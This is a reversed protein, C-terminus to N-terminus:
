STEKTDAKKAKVPQPCLAACGLFFERLEQGTVAAGETVGDRIRATNIAKYAEQRLKWGNSVFGPSPLDVLQM